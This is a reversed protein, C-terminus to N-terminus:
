SHPVLYVLALFVGNIAACILFAQVRSVGDVEELIRMLVVTWVITAVPLGVVPVVTLGNVWWGLLAPRMVGFLTGKGGLFARAIFHAAGIQVVAVGASYVCVFVLGLLLGWFITGTTAGDRTLMKHLATALFISAAVIASFVAGYALTDPDNSTRRIAVGDWVGIRVAMQLYHGLAIGAPPPMMEEPLVALTAPLCEHAGAFEM